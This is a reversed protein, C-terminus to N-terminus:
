FLRNDLPRRRLRPVIAAAFGPVPLHKKVSVPDDERMPAVRTRAREPYFLNDSPSSGRAFLLLLHRVRKRRIGNLV